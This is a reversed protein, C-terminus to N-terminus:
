LSLMVQDALITYIENKAKTTAEYETKGTKTIALDEQFYCYNKILNHCESKATITVTVTGDENTKIEGYKISGFLIYTTRNQFLKKASDLLGETDDTVVYRTFDSNGINRFGALMLNKLVASSSASNTTIAKGAKTFDVLAISGGSSYINTKVKYPITVAVPAYKENTVSFTINTNASFTPVSAEFAVIGNDNSFLEKKEFSIEGKEKSVPYSIEVPVNVLIEQNENTIKIAFPSKFAKNVATTEPKSHITLTTSIIKPEEVIAISTNEAEVKKNTEESILIEKNQKTKQEKSIEPKKPTSECSIILLISLCVIVVNKCM